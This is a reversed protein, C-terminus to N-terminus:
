KTLSGLIEAVDARFVTMPCSGPDIKRATWERHGIVSKETWGHFDCLAAAWRIASRYQKDTPAKRGSYMLEAGYFKANGDANDRVPKPPATGYDEAIVRGLVRGDGMGAHNARGTSILEVIGNDRIGVHCLPGPLDSRGHWLVRFDADDPADDGVHHIMVGNVDNFAGHSNRNHATWLKGNVKNEHFPVDFDRLRGILAPPTIPRSM